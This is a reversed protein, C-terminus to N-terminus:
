LLVALFLFVSFAVFLWATTAVVLNIAEKKKNRLFFLRYPEYFVILGCVLASTSFLLLFTIPGFFEEPGDGLIKEINFIFTAVLTCYGAIGLAQYLGKLKM